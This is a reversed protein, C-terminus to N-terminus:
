SYRIPGRDGDEAVSLQSQEDGLHETRSLVAHVLETAMAALQHNSFSGAHASMDDPVLKMRRTVVPDDLRGSRQVPQTLRNRHGSRAARDKEFGGHVPHAGQIGRR